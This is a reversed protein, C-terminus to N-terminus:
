AVGVALPAAPALIAEISSISVDTDAFTFHFGQSLCDVSSLDICNRSQHLIMM